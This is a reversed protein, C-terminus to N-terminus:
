FCDIIAITDRGVVDIEMRNYAICYRSRDAFSLYVGVVSVDIVSGILIDM